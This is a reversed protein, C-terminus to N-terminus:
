EKSLPSSPTLQETSYLSFLKLTIDYLIQINMNTNMKGNVTVIYVFKFDINM